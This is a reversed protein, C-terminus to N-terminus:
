IKNSVKILADVIAPDFQTGKCREMENLAEVKTRPSRYVRPSMMSDYCDAVQLIRSLMGHEQGKKGDPYGNGDWREHHERVIHRVDELFEIPTIITEGHIPHEKVIAYEQETLAEKKQLIDDEISIKGVDHLLSAYQLIEIEKRSCGLEKALIVSIDRVREVHGRTSTDKFEMAKSLAAVTGLFNRKLENYSMANILAIAAELRLTNLLNLEEITYIDKDNKEGLTLFGILTNDYMLPVCVEANLIDLYHETAHYGREANHERHKQIWLKNENRMWQVLFHKATFDITRVENNFGRASRLCYMKEDNDYLFMTASSVNFVDCITDIITDILDRLDLISVIKENFTQLAEDYKDRHTFFHDDFFKELREQLPMYLVAIFVVTLVRFIVMDRMGLLGAGYEFVAMLGLYMTTIFISMMGYVTSRKIMIHLDFLNYRFVAYTSALVFFLAGFASLNMYKFSGQLPLLYIVLLTTIGFSLLGIFIYRSQLLMIGKFRAVASGMMYVSYFLGFLFFATHAIFLPTFKISLFGATDIYGFLNNSLSMVFLISAISYPLIVEGSSLERQHVFSKVFLIGAAIMFGAGGFILKYHINIPYLQQGYLLFLWVANVAAYSLFYPKMFNEKKIKVMGILCLLINSIIAILVMWNM